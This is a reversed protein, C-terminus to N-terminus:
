HNESELYSNLNQRTIIELPFLYKPSVAKRLLLFNILQGIGVFTQRKSNQNILFDIIGKKLYSTNEKLLDYAVLKVGKKGRRKLLKSVIQAGRSTTVLIGKLSEESLFDMLESELTKLHTYNLDLSKVQYGNNNLGQFYDKFGKEKEKLFRSSKIDDYIHLIAYTGNENCGQHLLEAGLMGSQCLDQGIFSLPAASALTSNVFVFPIKLQQCHHFFEEAEEFFIPASIIGDPPNKLVAKAISKFSSRQYLNFNHRTLKISYQAWEHEAKKIGEEAQEWYEDQSPDPLLVAIRLSKGSVLARAILNPKYGTKELITQVRKYSDEAVEGRKHIVRDVTGVSVNAMRAIDRITVHKKM